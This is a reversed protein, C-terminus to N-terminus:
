KKRINRQQNEAVMVRIDNLTIEMGDLKKEIKSKWIETQETKEVLILVKSHESYAYGGFGLCLSILVLLIRILWEKKNNKEM